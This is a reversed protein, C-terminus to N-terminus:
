AGTMPLPLGRHNGEKRDQGGEQGHNDKIERADPGCTCYLPTLISSEIVEILVL